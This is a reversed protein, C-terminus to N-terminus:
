WCYPYKVLFRECYNRVSNRVASTSTINLAFTGSGAYGLGSNSSISGTHTLTLTGTHPTAVTTGAGAYIGWGYFVASSAGPDVLTQIYEPIASPRHALKASTSFAFEGSAATKVGARMWGSAACYDVVFYPADLVGATEAAAGSWTGSSTDTSGGSTSTMTYDFDNTASRTIKFSVYSNSDYPATSSFIIEVSGSLPITKLYSSVEIVGYGKVTTEEPISFSAVGGSITLEGEGAGDDTTASTAAHVTWTNGDPNVGGTYSAPNRGALSTTGRFSDYFRVDGGGGGLELVGANVFDAFVFCQGNHGDM